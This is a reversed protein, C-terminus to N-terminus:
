DKWSDYYPRLIKAAILEQDLPSIDDYKLKNICEQLMLRLERGFLPENQYRKVLYLFFALISDLAFQPIDKGSLVSLGFGKLKLLFFPIWLEPNIYRFNLTGIFTKGTIIQHEEVYFPKNYKDQITTEFLDLERAAHLICHHPFTMSQLFNLENNNLEELCYSLSNLSPHGNLNKFQRIVYCLFLLTENYKRQKLNNYTNKKQPWDLFVTIHEADIFGIKVIILEM